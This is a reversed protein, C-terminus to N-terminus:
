ACHYLLTIAETFKTVALFLSPSRTNPSKSLYCVNSDTSWRGQGTGEWDRIGKNTCM